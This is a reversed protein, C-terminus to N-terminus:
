NQHEYELCRVDICQGDTFKAEYSWSEKTCDDYTYFELVGHFNTDICGTPVVRMDDSSPYNLHPRESLPVEEYRV